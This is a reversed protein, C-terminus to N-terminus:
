SCTFYKRFLWLTEEPATCKYECFNKFMFIGLKIPSYVYKSIIEIQAQIEKGSKETLATDNKTM